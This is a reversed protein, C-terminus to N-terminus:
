PEARPPASRNRQRRCVKASARSARGISFLKTSFKLIPRLPWFFISGEFHHWPVITDMYRINNPPKAAM